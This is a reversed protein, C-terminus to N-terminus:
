FNPRSFINFKESNKYMAFGLVISFVVSVYFSVFSSIFVAPLNGMMPMDFPSLIISIFGAFGASIIVLVLGFALIKVYDFGLRKITDLGILPNITASFSRTYGAVLCAAPFYFVGWLFAIFALILVPLAFMVLKGFFQQMQADKTQDTTGIMSEMQGKRHDDIMGQLKEFEAEEQNILRQKEAVVADDSLEEDSYVNNKGANEAAAIMDPASKAAALNARDGPTMIVSTQDGVAESITSAAYWVSGAIIVALLGFSVIYAAISLFFPQIVDNWLEFDDFSPMFNGGVKGQSFNEVTNALVGFTLMNALMICFIAACFMIIGGIASAKQGISFIAFMLAGFFLSTKFNFPYGLAETFDSFGFGNSRQIYNKSRSHSSTTVEDIPRCMAGCNPCTRVTGGYKKPCTGCFKGACGDCVFSPESEPHNLCANENFTDSRHVHEANASESINRNFEHGLSLEDATEFSVADPAAENKGVANPTSVVPPQINLDKANFFEILNPIRGAELWRLNGRKVKDHRLVAGEGIWQILEDFNTAYIQGKVEVQWVEKENNSQM